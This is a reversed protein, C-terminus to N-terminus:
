ASKTFNRFAVIQKTMDTRGDTRRNTHLLEAIVSANEFVQRSFEIKM